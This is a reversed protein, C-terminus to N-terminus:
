FLQDEYHELQQKVEGQLREYYKMKLVVQKAEDYKEELYNSEFQEYLKQAHQKVVADIKDLEDIVANPSSEAQAQEIQQRYEMQQFLFEGDNTTDTDDNFEVDKMVLLYRARVRLSNLTEFADNIFSTCQISYRKAADDENVFKDPHYASQLSRFQQNLKSKDIQFSIPLDFLEFYNQNFDLSM